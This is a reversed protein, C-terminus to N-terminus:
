LNGSEQGGIEIRLTRLTKKLIETTKEVVIRWEVPKRTFLWLPSQGPCESLKHCLFGYHSLRGQWQKPRMAMHITGAQKMENSRRSDECRAVGFNHIGVHKNEACSGTADAGGAGRLAQPFAHDHGFKAPVDSSKGRAAQTPSVDSVFGRDASEGASEIM